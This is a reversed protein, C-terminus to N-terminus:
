KECRFQARKLVAAREYPSLPERSSAKDEYVVKQVTDKVQRGLWGRVSAYRYLIYGTGALLVVFIIWGLIAHTKWWDVLLAYVVIAAVIIAIWVEDKVKKVRTM